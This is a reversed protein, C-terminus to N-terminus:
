LFTIKFRHDNTKCLIKVFNAEHTFPNWQM